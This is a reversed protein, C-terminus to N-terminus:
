LAVKFIAKKDTWVNVEYELEIEEADAPVEFYFNGSTSRGASLTYVSFYDDVYFYDSAAQNDAYCYFSNIYADVDGENAFDFAVKIVKNGEAPKLYQNYGSWEEASVYTIKLGGDTVSDGVNFVNKVTTSEAPKKTTNEISTDITQQVNKDVSDASDDEGSSGAAGIIVIFAVAIIVWFWWKKTVPKKKKSVDAGCEPCFQVGDAIEKKCKPCLMFIGGNKM